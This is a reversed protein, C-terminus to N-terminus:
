SALLCFPHGAPDFVVLLQAPDRDYPQYPAVAGGSRVVLAVAADMDKVGCEFHIMKTQGTRHEPWVPPEYWDQAQVNIFTGRPDCLSAWKQEHHVVEAGLAAVYFAVVNEFQDPACDICVGGLEILRNAQKDEEV